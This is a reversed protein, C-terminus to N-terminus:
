AILETQETLKLTYEFVTRAATLRIQPPTEKNQMIEFITGAAQQMKIQLCSLTDEMLEHKCRTYEEKFEPNRLWGYITSESLGTSASAERVTPNSLLATLIIKKKSNKM